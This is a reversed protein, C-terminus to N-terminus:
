GKRSAPKVMEIIRGLTRDHIDLEMLHDYTNTLYDICPGAKGHGQVILKVADEDSLRGTYQSHTVDAVFIYATVAHKSSGARTEITRWLPRYVGTVMERQYLYKMVEPANKELVRFALGRCSGGRNLGFVLGPCEVTGRYEVSQICLARHYGRLLAPRTEEHPFDPNWMLSGYGFIWIDGNPQEM